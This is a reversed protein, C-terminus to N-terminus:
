ATKNEFRNQVEKIVKCISQLDSEGKKIDILDSLSVIMDLTKFDLSKFDYAIGFAMQLYKVKEEHTLEKEPESEKIRIFSYSDYNKHYINIKVGDIDVEDDDDAFNLYHKLDKVTMTKNKKFWTTLILSITLKNKPADDVPKCASCEYGRLKSCQHGCIEVSIKKM